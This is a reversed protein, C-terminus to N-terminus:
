PVPEGATLPPFLALLDALAAVREVPEPAACSGILIPALGAARAGLVDIEYIDGVYSCVSPMLALQETAAFFIRPDPKEIGVESSDIIVELFPALRAQQLLKRVHGNSNSIVGLRYGRGRLTELTSVAGEGPRSWLSARANEEAIRRTGAARAAEDEIGLERLMGDIYVPLREADTSDPREAIWRRVQRHAAAEADRFSSETYPLGAARCIAEGNVHVLTGGADFLIARIGRM